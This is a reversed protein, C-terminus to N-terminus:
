IPKATLPVRFGDKVEDLINIVRYRHSISRKLVPDTLEFEWLDGYGITKDVAAVTGSFLVWDRKPMVSLREGIIRVMDEPRIFDAVSCDQYLRGDVLCRMRCKDWHDKVDDFRWLVPAVVNACAQKSWVISVRELLRDTHDSGVGIYLEDGMVLVIEVEGSTKDCQVEIEGGTSLVSPSMPYIRPTPVDLAINVGIDKVEEQHTVAIKPDRMASGLNYLRKIELELQKDHSLSKITARLTM